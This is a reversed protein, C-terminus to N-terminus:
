ESLWQQLLKELLASLEGDEAFLKAKVRQQLEKPIYGAIQTYDPNSRKGGRKTVKPKATAPETTKKAIRNFLSEADAM